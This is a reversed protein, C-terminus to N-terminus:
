VFEIVIKLIGFQNYLLINVNMHMKYSMILMKLHPPPVLCHESFDIVTVINQYLSPVYINILKCRDILIVMSPLGVFFREFASWMHM